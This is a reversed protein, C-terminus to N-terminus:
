AGRSADPPAPDIRVRQVRRRRLSEVTVRRGDLEITDGPEPLRGLQEAVLGGITTAETAPPEIGLNPLDHVPYHGLLSMGGGAAARVAEVERDHEDRIEGVLEEVLDEVTVLGALGGYEDVVLGLQQRHAQLVRLAEVVALTDPLVPAPTAHDVVRGHRGVLALVSVQRDAADLQERYVPARSHGADVLRRLAEHAPLDDPLAVVDARPVLV